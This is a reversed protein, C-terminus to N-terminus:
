LIEDLLETLTRQGRAFAEDKWGTNLRDVALALALGHKQSWWRSRQGFGAMALDASVALGAPDVLWRYGVWQASGELTLWLSEAASLYALEGTFWQQHRATMMSRAQKAFGLAEGTSAAFAAALLLETEEAIAAAFQEEGEFRDQISDDDFSDPLGYREILEGIKVGYTPLQVVHTGEHLLVAIMLNDLGLPQGEVAGARWVSPTSMVFFAQPGDPQTFSTVIAPMQEGNPLAVMGEHPTAQWSAGLASSGSMADSSMLTCGGDFIVADLASVTGIGSINGTSYHWAKLARDLWVQDDASIECAPPANVAADIPGDNVNTCSNLLLFFGIACFRRLLRMQIGTTHTVEGGRLM